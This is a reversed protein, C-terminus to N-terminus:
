ARRFRGAITAVGIGILVLPWLAGWNFWSFLGFNSALWLGGVGILIIGLWNMQREDEARGTSERSGEKGESAGRVADGVRRAAEAAEEPIDRLNERIVDRPGTASTEGSPMIIALIVYAVLGLGGFFCTIVFALRVLVSDVNFYDAVGGAVGFLMKDTSNRQLKTSAM